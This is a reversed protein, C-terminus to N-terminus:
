AHSGGFTYTICDCPLVGYLYADHYKAFHQDDGADIALGIDMDKIVMNIRLLDLDDLGSADGNILYSAWHAPLIASEM